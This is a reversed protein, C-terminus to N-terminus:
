FVTCYLVACYLIACRLVHNIMGNKPFLVLADLGDPEALGSWVLGFPQFAEASLRSPTFFSEQPSARLAAIM